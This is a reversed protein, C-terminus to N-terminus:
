IMGMALLWSPAGHECTGDAEVWCGDIAECGGDNSWDMLQSDSPICEVRTADPHNKEYERYDVGDKLVRIRGARYYRIKKM